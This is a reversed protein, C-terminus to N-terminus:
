TIQNVLSGGFVTAEIQLEKIKLPDIVRKKKVYDMGLIGVFKNDITKIAFAYSSKADTDDSFYRVEHLEEHVEKYDSISITDNDYLYSISRGFISVPINQFYDKLSEVGPKITEYFM